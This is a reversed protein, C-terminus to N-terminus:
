QRAGKLALLAAGYAAETQAASSVPLGLVRERIKTWKDNKAGGGATFVEDAETAGLEKLLGYGKAEIRAISELIGHLYDSDSDPRPHLRPNMNPDAVPFREGIAPLPYYDLSSPLSPNIQESLKQLQVDTFLQRLVAGGTNSAGGVLWKDDLRHSYVGFRADDVRSKSLLKIALTSGLSTVAKGPETARAALFAAISDTTGACVVCDESFGLNQRVDEKVNAIASGPAVISPLVSSYPQALLWPPYADTEPDFGVKLANNYDSIGLKGHLLWLLWDAQHLLAASDKNESDSNWWSVLKCLTSSGTCVTHNPPAISKVAPLADPCSENYLLPRCLPEGTSSNVIMTTASTGDISISAVLPRLYIPVDELLSFLTEKWSRGWDVSEGNLYLPYERKAEAHIQGQKDILAYRAGSTGFDLGLYFREIGDSNVHRGKEPIGMSSSIPRHIKRTRRFAKNVTLSGNGKHTPPNLSLYCTLPHISAQM